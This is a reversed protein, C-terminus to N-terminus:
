LSDSSSILFKLSMDPLFNHLGAGAETLAPSIMIKKVDEKYEQREAM